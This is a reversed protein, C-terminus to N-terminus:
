AWFYYLLTFTILMYIPGHLYVRVGERERESYFLFGEENSKCLRLCNLRVRETHTHTHKQAFGCLLFTYRIAPLFLHLTHSSACDLYLHGAQRM